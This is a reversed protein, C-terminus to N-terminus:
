NEETFETNLIKTLAGIMGEVLSDTRPQEAYVLRAQQDLLEERAQNVKAFFDITVPHIRWDNYEAKSIREM